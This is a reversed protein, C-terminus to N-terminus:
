DINEFYRRLRDEYGRPPRRQGQARMADRLEPPLKAVWPEERFTREGLKVDPGGPGGARKGNDGEGSEGPVPVAEGPKAGPTKAAIAAQAPQKGKAALASARAAAAAASEAAQSKAVQAMAQPGAMMEATVDPSAPTFQTGMRLPPPAAPSTDSSTSPAPKGAEPPTAAPPVVPQLNSAIELAERIPVNAVESQGSVQEAAQGTQRQAEAFSQVAKALKKAAPSTPKSGTQGTTTPEAASPPTPTQAEQALAQRNASIQEAATQQTQAAQMISEALAKDRRVRDERATLSAAARELDGAVQRETGELTAPSPPAAQGAKSAAKEASALAAHAAPDVREAQKALQRAKQGQQKMREAQEAALKAEAARLKAKAQALAQALADSTAPDAPSKAARSQGAEALPGLAAAAEPADQAALERAASAAQAMRQEAQLDPQGAPAQKAEAQEAEALQRAKELAREAAAQSLRATDPKGERLEEAAQTAAQQAKHLEDALADPKAQQQTSGTQPRAAAQGAAQEIQEAAQRQKQVADAASPSQVAEAQKARAEDIRQALSTAEALQPKGAARQQDLTAERIKQGAQKLRQLRAALSEPRDTVVQQTAERVPSVIALQDDSEQALRRATEGIKARLQKAAQTMGNAAATAETSAQKLAAAASPPAKEAAQFQKAAAEAHEAAQKSSAAAEPASEKVGASIKNALSELEAQREALQNADRPDLKKSQSAQQAQEAIERETAAARELSEAARALEGVEVALRERKADALAAEVEARVQRLSAETDYWAKEATAPDRPAARMSKASEHAVEAADKLGTNVPEPLSRNQPMQKLKDGIEEAAKQTAAPNKASAANMEAAKQQLTQLEARTQQLEDVQKALEAASKDASSALPEAMLEQEIAALNKIVQEQQALAQERDSEFLKGTAAYAAAKAKDVLPLASATEGLTEPLRAINKQITAQQEILKDTTTEDLKASRTQELLQQQEAKLARVTELGTERDAGILGQTEEIKELLLRLGKLVATEQESALDFDAAELNAIATDLHENVGATKLLSLGEAAGQGVEGGWGRVDSLTEMLRLYLAKVDRQDQIAALLGAEQKLKAQEVLSQTANAVVTEMGILRKVQAALEATQLRRLLNQREIALRVVVERTKHRAELFTAERQAPEQDQAALLLNVVDAMEAEVLGDINRRMQVIDRHLPLSQLGNEELQQLQIDLISSVLERALDRARQQIEQKRRLLEVDIEQAGAYGLPIAFIAAMLAVKAAIALWAHNPM